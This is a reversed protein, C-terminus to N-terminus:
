LRQQQEKLSLTHQQMCIIIIQIESFNLCLIRSFIQQLSNMTKTGTFANKENTYWSVTLIGSFKYSIWDYIINSVLHNSCLEAILTIIVSNRSGIIKQNRYQCYLQNNLLFSFTFNKRELEKVQTNESPWKFRNLLCHLKIHVLHRLGSIYHWTRCHVLWSFLIINMECSRQAKMTIPELAIIPKLTFTM